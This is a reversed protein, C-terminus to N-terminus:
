QFNVKPATVIYEEGNTQTYTITFRHQKSIEPKKTLWFYLERRPKPNDSLFVPLAVAKKNLSDSYPSSNGKTSVAFFQNLSAGAPFAASFASDSTIIINEIIEKSGSWGQLRAPECAFVAGFFPNNHIGANAHYIVNAALKIGFTTANIVSGPHASPFYPQYFTLSSDPKLVNQVSFGQVDFYPIDPGVRCDDACGPLVALGGPLILLALIKKM